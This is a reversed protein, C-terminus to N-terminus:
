NALKNKFWDFFLTPTGWDQGDNHGETTTYCFVVPYEAPCGNFSVCTAGAKAVNVGTPVTYATTITKDKPNCTPVAGNVMCGNQNLMRQCAPIICAYTNDTDNVDKVYFAATPKNVCTPQSGPYGAAGPECGTVAAVGRFKDPFACNFQQAVWGGSSYGSWFQHNIDVCYQSEITNMLWPMFLFDNSTPSRNDYCGLLDSYTDYDLGVLIADGGDFNEYPLGDKGANFWDPDFCGAGNYIVRYAKTPDYSIPLYVWWGRWEPDGSNPRAPPLAPTSGVPIAQCNAEAANQDCNAPQRVWM